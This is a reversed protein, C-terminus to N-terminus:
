ENDFPFCILILNGLRIQPHVNKQLDVRIVADSSSKLTNKRWDIKKREEGSGGRCGGARSWLRVVCFWKWFGHGPIIVTTNNDRLCRVICCRGCCLVIALVFHRGAFRCIHVCLAFLLSYIISLYLLIISIM